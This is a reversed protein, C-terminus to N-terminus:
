YPYLVTKGGVSFYVHYACYSSVIEGGPGSYLFYENGIGKPWNNLAIVRAVESQIAADTIGGAPFPATDVYAGGFRSVNQINQQGNGLDQYYQTTTNFLASGGVDNFWRQILSKYSASSAHGTPEWFIAYNTNTLEVEGGGYGLPLGVPAGGILPLRNETPLAGKAKEIVKMAHIRGPTIATGASASAAPLALAALAAAATLAIASTRIHRM